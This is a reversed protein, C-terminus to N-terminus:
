EGIERVLLDLIPLENKVRGGDLVTSVVDQRDQLVQCLREEITSRAVLFWVFVKQGVAGLRHLRSAAQGVAGPTWPLECFALNSCVKQLGDMGVGAAQINTVALRCKRDQQFQRVANTRDRGTVSGDIVVSGAESRRVLAEIMKHHNCFLVLKEDSERLFDNVWEVVSKLKLRAALRLLYGVKMLATARIAKKLSSPNRNAMWLIFDTRAQHYENANRMPMPVVEILQDPLDDLVDQKRKRIMCTSTLLEHLEKTRTAGDYKWGWRTLKPDCYKQAFTWRSAFDKPRLIQLTSFLEIPKAVLPTGSLALVHPVGKCLSFVAKTRKARPNAIFQSEDVIVTRPKITKLRPLWYRAIDYNVITLPSRPIVNAKQGELVNSCIGIWRRAEQEWHYKVSAPCIVVAPFRVSNRDLYSLAIATKGLGMDCALLCRGNFTEIEYVTDYQYPLM